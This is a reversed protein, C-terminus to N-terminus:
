DRGAGRRCHVQGISVSGVERELWARCFRARRRSSRITRDAGQQEAARARAIRADIAPLALKQAVAQGSCQEIQQWVHYAGASTGAGPAHRIEVHSRRNDPLGRFTVEFVAFGSMAAANVATVTATRKSEDPIVAAEAGTRYARATCAALFRYDGAIDGTRTQRRVGRRVRRFLLGPADGIIGCCVASTGANVDGPQRQPRPAIKGRSAPGSARVTCTAVRRRLERAEVAPLRPALSVAWRTLVPPSEIGSAKAEM